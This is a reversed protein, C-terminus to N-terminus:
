KARGNSPSGLEKLPAPDVDNVEDLRALLGDSLELDAPGTSVPKEERNRFSENKPAEKTEVRESQVGAEGGSVTLGEHRSEWGADSLIRIGRDREGRSWAEAFEVCTSESLGIREVRRDHEESLKNFLREAEEEAVEAPLEDFRYEGRKVGGWVRDSMEDKGEESLKDWSHSYFAALEDFDSKKFYEVKLFEAYQIKEEHNLASERAVKAAVALEQALAAAKKEEKRDTLWGEPQLTELRKEAKAIENLLLSSASKGSLRGEGILKEAQNIAKELKLTESEDLTDM